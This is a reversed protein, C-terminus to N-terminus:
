DVFTFPVNVNSQLESALKNADLACESKQREIEVGSLVVNARHILMTILRNVEGTVEEFQKNEFNQIKDRCLLTGDKAVISCRILADELNLKAYYKM